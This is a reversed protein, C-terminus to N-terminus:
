LTPHLHGIIAQYKTGLAEGSVGISSHNPSNPGQLEHLKSPQKKNLCNLTVFDVHLPSFDFNIDRDDLFLIESIDLVM